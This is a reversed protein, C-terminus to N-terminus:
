DKMDEKALQEAKKAEAEADADPRAAEIAKRLQKSSGDKMASKLLDFPFALNNSVHVVAAFQRAHEFGQAAEQLNTGKPLLETLKAALKPNSTLESLAKM